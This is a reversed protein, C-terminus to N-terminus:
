LRYEDLFAYYEEIFVDHEDIFNRYHQSLLYLKIDVDRHLNVASNRIFLILACLCLTNILATSIGGIVILKPPTPFITIGAICAGLALCTSLITLALIIGSKLTKHSGTPPSPREKM